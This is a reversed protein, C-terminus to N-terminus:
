PSLTASIGHAGPEAHATGCIHSSTHRDTVSLWLCTKLEHTLTRHAGHGPHNINTIVSQQIMEPLAFKCAQM